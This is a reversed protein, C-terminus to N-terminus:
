EDLEDDEDEEIEFEIMPKRMKRPKYKFSDFNIEGADIIDNKVLQISVDSVYKDNLIDEEINNKIIALYYKVKNFESNFSKRRIIDEINSKESSVYDKIQDLSFKTKLLSVTEKIEKWSYPKIIGGVTEGMINFIEKETEKEAQKNIKNQLWSQFEDQNCFYAKDSESKYAIDTTLEKGCFKCKCRRGM